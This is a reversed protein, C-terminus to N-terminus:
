ALKQLLYFVVGGLFYAIVDWLDSTYRYSQKPLYYEFVFAFLLVLSFITFINLRISRDKHLLWVTHLGVIALIPILLFDNLHYFLWDPGEISFFKLGQVGLFV